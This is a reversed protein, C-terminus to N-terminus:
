SCIKVRLHGDVPGAVVQVSQVHRNPTGVREIPKADQVSRSPYVYPDASVRTRPASPAGPSAVTEGALIQAEAARLDHETAEGRAWQDLLAQVDPSAPPLQELDNSGQTTALLDARDTV